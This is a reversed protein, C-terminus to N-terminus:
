SPKTICDEVEERKRLIDLSTVTMEVHTLIYHPYQLLYILYIRSVIIISLLIRVVENQLETKAQRCRLM